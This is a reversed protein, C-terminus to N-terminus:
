MKHVGHPVLAAPVFQDNICGLWTLFGFVPHAFSLCSAIFTQTNKPKIKMLKNSRLSPIHHDSCENYRLHTLREGRERPSGVRQTRMDPTASNVSGTGGVAQCSLQKGGRKPSTLYLCEGSPKEHIHPDPKTLARRGSHALVVLTLAATSSIYPGLLRWPSAASLRHEGNCSNSLLHHYPLKSPNKHMPCQTPNDSTGWNYTREHTLHM